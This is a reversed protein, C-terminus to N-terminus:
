STLLRDASSSVITVLVGVLVYTSKMVAAPTVRLDNIFFGIDCRSMFALLDQSMSNDWESVLMSNAVQPSQECQQTTSAATVLAHFPMLSTALFPLLSFLMDVVNSDSWLIRFITSAAMVPIMGVQLALSYSCGDCLTRVFIQITNWEQAMGDFSVNEACLEQMYQILSTRMASCIHGVRMCLACIIGSALIYAVVGTAVTQVRLYFEVSRTEYIKTTVRSIVSCIWLLLLHNGHDRSIVLWPQTYGFAVSHAQLLGDQEGASLCNESLKSCFHHILLGIVASAVVSADLLNRALFVEYSEWYFSFSFAALTLSAAILSIYKAQRPKTLTRLGVLQRLWWLGGRFSMNNKAMKVEEAMEERMQAALVKAQRRWAGSVSNPLVQVTKRGAQTPIVTDHRSTLTSRRMPLIDALNEALNELAGGGVGINPIESELPSERLTMAAKALKRARAPDFRNESRKSPTSCKSAGKQLRSNVDRESFDSQFLDPSINLDYMNLDLDRRSASSVGSEEEPCCQSEESIPLFEPGRSGSRYLSSRHSGVGGVVGRTGATWRPSPLHEALPPAVTSETGSAVLARMKDLQLKVQEILADAINDALLSM